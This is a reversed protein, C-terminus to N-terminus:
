VRECIVYYRDAGGNACTILTLFDKGKKIYCDESQYKKYVQKDIVRYSLKNWYNTIQVNDGINLNRIYDFFIKGIYGTHAALVCNTSEGGIPLSTFTLHAAGYSMNESSGGLYIPLEMDITPASIYGYVNNPVGYNQLNLSMQQYSDENILLDYQNTKLKENYAVSDRYLRDFDINYITKDSQERESKQSQPIDNNSLESNKGSNTGSPEASQESNQQKIREFEDIISLAKQKNIQNSIQPTVLLTFGLVFFLIAFIIIVKKIM